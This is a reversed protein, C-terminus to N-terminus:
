KHGKPKGLKLFDYTAKKRKKTPSPMLHSPLPKQKKISPLNFLKDRELVNCEDEGQIMIAHEPSFSKDPKDKIRTHNGLTKRSFGVKPKKFSSVGIVNSISSKKNRGLNPTLMYKVFDGNIVEDESIPSETVAKKPITNKPVELSDPLNSSFNEFSEPPTMVKGARRILKSIM